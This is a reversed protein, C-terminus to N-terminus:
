STIEPEEIPLLLTLVTAAEEGTAFWKKESYDEKIAAIDADVQKRHYLYQQTLKFSMMKIDEFQKVYAVIEKIEDEM